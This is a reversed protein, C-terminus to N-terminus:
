LLLPLPLCCLSSYSSFLILISESLGEEVVASSNCSLSSVILFCAILTIANASSSFIFVDSPVRFIISPPYM